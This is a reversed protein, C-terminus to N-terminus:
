NTLRACIDEVLWVVVWSGAAMVVLWYLWCMLEIALAVPCRFRDVDM